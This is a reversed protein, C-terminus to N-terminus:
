GIFEKIGAGCEAAVLRVRRKGGAALIEFFGYCLGAEVYEVVPLSKHKQVRISM